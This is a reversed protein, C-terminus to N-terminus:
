YIFHGLHMCSATTVGLIWATELSPALNITINIASRSIKLSCNILKIVVIKSFTVDSLEPM